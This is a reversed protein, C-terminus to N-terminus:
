KFQLTRWIGFPLKGGVAKNRFCCQLCRYVTYNYLSVCFDSVSNSILNWDVWAANTLLATHTLSLSMYVTNTQKIIATLSLNLLLFKLPMWTTQHHCCQSHSSQVCGGGDCRCTSLLTYYVSYHVPHPPNLLVRNKIYRVVLAVVTWNKAWSEQMGERGDMHKVHLLVLWM